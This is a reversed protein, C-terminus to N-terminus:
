GDHHHVRWLHMGDGDYGRNDGSGEAEFGDGSGMEESYPIFIYTNQDNQESMRIEEDYIIDWEM